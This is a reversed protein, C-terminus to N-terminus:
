RFLLGVFAPACVAAVPSGPLHFLPFTFVEDTDVYHYTKWKSGVTRHQDGVRYSQVCETGLGLSSGPEVRSVNEQFLVSPKVVFM